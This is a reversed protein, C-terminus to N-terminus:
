FKVTITCVKKTITYNYNGGEVSFCDDAALTTDIVPEAGANSDVIAEIVVSNGSDPQGDDLKSDIAYAEEPTLTDGIIGLHAETGGEWVEEGSGEVVAGYTFVGANIGLVYYLEKRGNTLAVIGTGIKTEPCTIGAKAGGMIDASYAYGGKILGVNSLHIWFNSIEGHVKGANGYKHLVYDPGRYVQHELNGDGDGNDNNSFGDLDTTFVNPGGGVPRDIGFEFAKSFDGPLANSGYKAKFTNVATDYERLQSLVNRIQTQKILDQGALIGVVLLGIIVLVIALEVLTFGKKM